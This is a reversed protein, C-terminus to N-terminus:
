DTPDEPAESEAEPSAPEDDTVPDLVPFLSAAPWRPSELGNLDATLSGEPEQTIADEPVFVLPYVNLQGNSLVATPVPDGFWETDTWDSWLTGTRANALVIPDGNQDLVQANEVPAGDADYVFINTVAVLAPDVSVAPEDAEDVQQDAQGSAYGDNWGNGYNTNYAGGLQNGVMNLLIVLAFAAIASFVLGARRLWRQQGTRRQGWLVSLVLAGALLLHQLLGRGLPHAVDTGSIWMFLVWGRGLWWVPRLAVAFDIVANVWRHEGRWQRWDDGLEALQRGVLARLTPRRAPTPEPLEVGAAIRLEEAYRDPSGFVATVAALDAAGGDPSREALAEALDAELGGTLEDMTEADLGALHDRVANAFATVAPPPALTTM